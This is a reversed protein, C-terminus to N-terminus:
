MTDLWAIGRAFPFGLRVKDGTAVLDKLTSIIPLGAGVTAENLVTANGRLSSEVILDYLELPGLFAKKNPTFIHIGAELLRPYFAAVSESSINDVAVVCDGQAILPKLKILLDALSHASSSSSLAATWSGNFSLDFGAANFIARKSSSLSVLTYNGRSSLAPLTIRFRRPWCRGGRRQDPASVNQM